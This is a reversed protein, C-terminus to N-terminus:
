EDCEGMCNIDLGICREVTCIRDDERSEEESIIGEIDLLTPSICDTEEPISWAVCDVICHCRCNVQFELSCRAAVRNHQYSTASM